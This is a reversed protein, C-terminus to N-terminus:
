NKTSKSNRQKEKTQSKWSDHDFSFHKIKLRTFSFSIKNKIYQIHVWLACFLPYKLTLFKSHVGPSFIQFDYEQSESTVEQTERLNNSRM